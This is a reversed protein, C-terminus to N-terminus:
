VLYFISYPKQTDPHSFFVGVNRDHSKIIAADFKKMQIDRLIRSFHTKFEHTTFTKYVTNPQEM